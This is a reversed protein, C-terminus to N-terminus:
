WFFDYIVDVVQGTYVNVLIADDYYRVWKYPWPAYPLRYMWPDDLWYYRDYYAPWLRWGVNWRNYGWGFPDFYFGLRFLSRNYHRHSRWDYRHDRRWHSTSWTPAPPSSTAQPPPPAPRDPRAMAPPTVRPPREPRQVARERLDRHEQVITERRDRRMDQLAERSQRREDLTPRGRENVNAPRRTQEIRQERVQSRTERAEMRSDRASPREQRAQQRVERAQPGADRAQSREERAETRSRREERAESRKTRREERAEERDVRDVGQAIAPATVSAASTALLLTVLFRRM